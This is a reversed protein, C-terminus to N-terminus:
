YGPPTDPNGQRMDRLWRPEEKDRSIQANAYENTQQKTILPGVVMRASVIAATLVSPLLANPDAAARDYALFIARFQELLNSSRDM